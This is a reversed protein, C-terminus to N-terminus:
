RKIVKEIYVNNDIRIKVIFINSSNQLRVSTVTYDFTGPASHKINDEYLKEGIINFIEINVDSHASLTYEINFQEDFPNPSIHIQPNVHEESLQVVITNKMNSRAENKPVTSKLLSPECPETKRVAIQYYSIGSATDTYQTQSSAISDILLLNDPSHGKYIYYTSYDFGTYESWSLNYTGPLGPSIQLHITRHEGSEDSINDCSDITVLKYRDAHTSPNSSNDTYVSEENFPVTGIASYQGAVTTERLVQYEKINLGNTREWIIRNKGTETDVTVMCIPVTSVIKPVTVSVEGSANCGAYDVMNLRIISSESLSGTYVSDGPLNNWFYNFPREGGEILPHITFEAGSCSKIDQGLSVPVGPYVTINRKFTDVAGLIKTTVLQIHKEGATDWKIKCTTTDQSIIHGGDPEWEYNIISDTEIDFSAYYIGATDCLITDNPQYKSAAFTAVGAGDMNIRSYNSNGFWSIYCTKRKVSVPYDADQLNVEIGIQKGNEAIFPGNAGPISDITLSSFPICIEYIWSHMYTSTYAYDMRVNKPLQHHGNIVITDRRTYIYLTPFVTVFEYHGYWPGSQESGAGRGDKLNDTYVDLYIEAQDGEGIDFEFLSAPYFYVEDVSLLFYLATDSYGIKWYAENITALTDDDAQITIHNEERSSWVADIQGDLVPIQDQEFKTIVTNTPYSQAILATAMFCLLSLIELTKM